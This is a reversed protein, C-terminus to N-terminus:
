ISASDTVFEEHNESSRTINLAHVMRLGKFNTKLNIMASYDLVNSTWESKTFTSVATYLCYVNCRISAIM